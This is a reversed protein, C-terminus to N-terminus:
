KLLSGWVFVEMGASQILKIKEERQEPTDFGVEKGQKKLEAVSDLNFSDVQDWEGPKTDSKVVGYGPLGISIQSGNKNWNKMYEIVKKIWEVSAFDKTACPAYQGDYTMIKVSLSGVSQLQSYLYSMSNSEGYGACSDLPPTLDITFVKDLSTTQEITKKTLKLLEIYKDVALKTNYKEIWWGERDIDVGDSFNAVTTVTKLFNARATENQEIQYFAEFQDRTGGGLSVVVKTQSSQTLVENKLQIVDSLVKQENTLLGDNNLTGFSYYLTKIASLDTKKLQALTEEFKWGQVFYEYNTQGLKPKSTQVFDLVGTTTNSSTEPAQVIPQTATKESTPVRNQAIWATGIGMSFIIISVALIAPNRMIEVYFPVKKM